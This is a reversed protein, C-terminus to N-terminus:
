ELWHPTIRHKRYISKQYQNQLIMLNAM